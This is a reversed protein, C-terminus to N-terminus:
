FARKTKLLEVFAQVSVNSTLQKVHAEHMKLSILAERTGKGFCDTLAEQYIDDYIARSLSRQVPSTIMTPIFSEQLNKAKLNVDDPANTSTGDVWVTFCCRFHDFKQNSSSSSSLKTNPQKFPQVRHLMLDSRFLVVTNFKPAITVPKGLFPLLQIQGGDAEENYNETLYVGLTLLRKNPASPNDYHWPFCGGTNVQLKLTMDNQPDTKLTSLAYSSTINEEHNSKATTPARDKLFAAIKPMEDRFFTHMVPVDTKALPNHLDYEYVNPKVLQIPGQPLLFEVKNPFMKSAKYTSSIANQFSKAVADPFPSQGEPFIYYGNQEFFAAADATFHKEFGVLSM